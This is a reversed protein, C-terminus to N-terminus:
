YTNFFLLAILSSVSYFQLSLPLCVHVNPPQIQLTCLPYSILTTKIVTSPSNSDVL